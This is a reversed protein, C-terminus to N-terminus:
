LRSIPAPLKFLYLFLVQAVFFVKKSEMIIVPQKM